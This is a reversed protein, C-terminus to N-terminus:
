TFLPDRIKLYGIHHVVRLVTDSIRIEDILLYDVIGHVAVHPGDGIDHVSKLGALSLYEERAEFPFESLFNFHCLQLTIDRFMSSVMM